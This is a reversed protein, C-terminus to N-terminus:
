ILVIAIIIGLCIAVTRTINADITNQNKAILFNEELMKEFYDLANIQENVDFKGLVSGINSLIEIDKQLFGVSEGFNVFSERWEQEFNCFNSECIKRNMQIFIKNLPANTNKMLFGVLETMKICNFGIERRIIKLMYISSELAKVRRLFQMKRYFGFSSCSSIILIAGLLKFM